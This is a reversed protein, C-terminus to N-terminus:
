SANSARKFDSLFFLMQRVNKAINLRTITLHGDITKIKTEWLGCDNM